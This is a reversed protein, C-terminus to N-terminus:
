NIEKIFIELFKLVFIDIITIKTVYILFDIWNKTNFWNLSIKCVLFFWFSTSLVFQMIKVNLM